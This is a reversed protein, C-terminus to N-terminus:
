FVRGQDDKDLSEEARPLKGRDRSLKILDKKIKQRTTFSLHDVFLAGKLHDVEHQVVRSLLGGLGALRVEQLELSRAALDIKEPRWVKEYIGPLSLCGEELSVEPGAQATIEPNLFIFPDQPEEETSLDVVVIQWSEGVQPAALGLGKHSKLTECMDAVLRRIHNDVQTVSRARTV